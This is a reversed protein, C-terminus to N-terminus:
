DTNSFNDPTQYLAFPLILGNSMEIVLDWLELPKVWVSSCVLVSCFYWEMFSFFHGDSPRHYSTHLEQHVADADASRSM